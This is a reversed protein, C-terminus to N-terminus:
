GGTALNYYFISNTIDATSNWVFIAGGRSAANTRFTCNAIVPSSNDILIGGGNAASNYAMICGNIIAQSAYLEIGSGFNQEILCHKIVPSAGNLLIGCNYASTFTFGEIVSAATEGSQLSILHPYENGDIICNEYGGSSKLTLDKGQFDLDHNGTGSYYGDAVLVTDGEGAANIGSQIDAYDDPILLTEANLMAAGAAFATIFIMQRKM